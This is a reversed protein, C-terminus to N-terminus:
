LNDSNKVINFLLEWNVLRAGKIFNTPIDDEGYLKNIVWKKFDKLNSLKSINNQYKNEGIWIATIETIRNSQKM